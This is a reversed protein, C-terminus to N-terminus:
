LGADPVSPGLKTPLTRHRHTPRSPGAPKPRGGTISSRCALKTGAGMEGHTKDAREGPWFLAQLDHLKYRRIWDGESGRPPHRAPRHPRHFAKRRTKASPAGSTGPHPTGVPKSRKMSSPPRAPSWRAMASIATAWSGCGVDSAAWFRDGPRHQLCQDDVMAAGGSPRRYPIACSARQAPRDGLHLSYLGPSQRRGACADAPEVGYQFGHWSVDRGEVLQAVEQERQFIVCFDPKHSAM